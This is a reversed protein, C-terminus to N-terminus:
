ELTAAFIIIGYQGETTNDFDVASLETESGLYIDLKTRLNAFSYYDL